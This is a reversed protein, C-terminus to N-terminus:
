PIILFILSIKAFVGAELSILLKANRFLSPFKRFLFEGILWRGPELGCPDRIMINALGCIEDQIDLVFHSCSILSGVTQHALNERDELNNGPRACEAGWRRASAM